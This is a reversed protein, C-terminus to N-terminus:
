PTRTSSGVTGTGTGTNSEEELNSIDINIFQISYYGSLMNNINDDISSFYNILKSVSTSSYSSKVIDSILHDISSASMIAQRKKDSVSPLIASKFADMLSLGGDSISIIFTNIDIIKTDIVGLLLVIDKMTQAKADIENKLEGSMDVSIDKINFDKFTISDDIISSINIFEVSYDDDLAIKAVEMLTMLKQLREKTVGSSNISQTAATVPDFNRVMEKFKSVDEGNSIKALLITSLPSIFDVDAPGYMDFSLNKDSGDLQGNNNSDIISGKPIRVKCDSDAYVNEFTILGKAGVSLDSYYEEGTSCCIKAPSSLKIIYGDAAHKETTTSSDDSSEDDSSETSNNDQSGTTSNSDEDDSTTSSSSTTTSNNDEEEEQTLVTSRDGTGETSNNEAIIKAETANIETQEDVDQEILTICSNNNECSEVTPVFDGSINIDKLGEAIYELNFLTATPKSLNNEELLEQNYFLNELL